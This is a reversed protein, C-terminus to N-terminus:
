IPCSELGRKELYKQHYEEAPYFTETKVIQTAIKRGLRKEEKEKSKEAIKKQHENSYFIVSRYQTGFDPGQRNLQTADHIKWFVEILKNYSIKSPDFTVEVIEAYGTKDTCVDKYSPNKYKKEDGGMYGVRTKIVGSTRSFDLEVHWFCGGGFVAIETKVM